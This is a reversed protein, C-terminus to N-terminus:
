PILKPITDHKYGSLNRWTDLLCLIKVSLRNSYGYFVASCDRFYNKYWLAILVFIYKLIPIYKIIFILTGSRMGKSPFQCIYLKRFIKWISKVRIAQHSTLHRLLIKYQLFLKTTGTFWTTNSQKWSFDVKICYLV